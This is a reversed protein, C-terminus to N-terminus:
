IADVIGEGPRIGRRLMPEIQGFIIEPVYAISPVLFDPKAAALEDYSNSGSAYLGITWSGANNGSKIGAATDDIKVVAEVPIVKGTLQYASLMCDFIMFPSPRGPVKEANTSVDFRIGYKDQLVKSLNASDEAFYGTDCGLVIGAERLKELTEEAGKIPRALDEDMIYKSLLPRFVSLVKEFDEETWRRGYKEEWQRSIEPNDLLIRLHTPKYIGMPKRITAWDCEIGFERLAEYFPIVPAKCGRKDDLPWRASLDGPGDCFTGATDFVALAIKGTSTRNYM